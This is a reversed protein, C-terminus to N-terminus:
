KEYIYEERVVQALLEEIMMEGFKYGHIGSYSPDKGNIHRVILNRFDPTNKRVHERVEGVLLIAIKAKPNCLTKNKLVRKIEVIEEERNSLQLFELWNVSLYKEYEKLSFSAGTIENKETLSKKNCYRSIHQDDKIINKM